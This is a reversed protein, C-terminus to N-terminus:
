VAGRRAPRTLSDAGASVGDAAAGAAVDGGGGIWGAARFERGPTQEGGSTRGCGGVGESADVLECDCVRHGRLGACVICVGGAAGARFLAAASGAGGPVVVDM